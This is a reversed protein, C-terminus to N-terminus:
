TTTSGILEFDIPRGNRLIKFGNKDSFVDGYCYKLLDHNEIPASLLVLFDPLLTMEVDLKNGQFFLEYHGQLHASSLLWRYFSVGMQHQGHVLLRVNNM